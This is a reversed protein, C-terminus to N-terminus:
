NIEGKEIKDLLKNILEWSYDEFGGYNEYFDEDIEPHNQRMYNRVQMGLRGSLISNWIKFLTDDDKANMLYNVWESYNEPDEKDASHFYENMWQLYLEENVM